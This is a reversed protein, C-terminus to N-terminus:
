ASRRSEGATKQQWTPAAANTIARLVGEVPGYGYRSMWLHSLVVQVVFIAVAIGMTELPSVQGVLGLGIGTFIVM